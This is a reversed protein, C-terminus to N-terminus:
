QQQGRVAGKRRGAPPARELSIGTNAPPRAPLWARSRLALLSGTVPVAWSQLVALHHPRALAVKDIVAAQRGSNRVFDSGVSVVQGHGVPICQDGPDGQEGFPGASVGNGGDGPSGCGVLTIVFVLGTAVARLRM